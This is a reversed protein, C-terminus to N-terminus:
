WLRSSAGRRGLGHAYALLHAAVGQPRARLRERLDSGRPTLPEPFGTTNMTLLQVYWDPNLAYTVGVVAGMSVGVIASPAYGYHHLAHLVGVHAFGRAGGGALVLAFPHHPRGETVPRSSTRHAGQASTLPLDRLGREM